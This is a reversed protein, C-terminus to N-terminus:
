YRQLAKNWSLIFLGATEARLRTTGFSVLYAGRARLLTIETDSFDGEPGIWYTTDHGQVTGVVSALPEVAECWGAVHPGPLRELAPEVPLPEWLEPLRSRHNQKLVAVCIRRMREANFQVRESRQARIPVLRTVGLETAKEVLWEMRDRHKLLSFCLTTAVPPEGWNQIQQEIVIAATDKGVKQLMGTVYVGHGDVGGVRTGEPLRLVQLAHRSEEPDLDAIGHRLAAIWFTHMDLFGDFPAGPQSIM